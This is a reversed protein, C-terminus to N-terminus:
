ELSWVEPPEPPKNYTREVTKENLNIKLQVPWKNRFVGAATVTSPSWTVISYHTVEPVLGGPGGEEDAYFAAWFETCESKSRECEIRVSAYPVWRSAHSRWSGNVVVTTESATEFGKTSLRPAVQASHKGCATAAMLVALGLIVKVRVIGM